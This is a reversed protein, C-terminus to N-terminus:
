EEGKPYDVALIEEVSVDLISALAVLNDVTPLSIGHQWKYIAQPTAFGLFEQLERVSVGSRKRLICINQGTKNLDVVPIRM